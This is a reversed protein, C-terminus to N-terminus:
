LNAIFSTLNLDKVTGMKNRIDIVNSRNRIYYTKTTNIDTHGMLKTITADAFGSEGLVSAYTKRIKHPSKYPIDLKKCIRSLKKRISDTTYPLGKKNAFLYESETDIGKLLDLFSDSGTSFVISRNGAKTKPGNEKIATRITKKSDSDYFQGKMTRRVKFGFEEIDCKRLATAEGIRIGSLCITLLLLCASDYRKEWLYPILKKMEDESYVEEEDSKVIETFDNSNFDLEEFLNRHYINSEGKKYLYKLMKKLLGIANNFAKRSPAKRKVYDELYLTLKGETYDYINDELIDGFFEKVRYRARRATTESKSYQHLFFDDFASKITLVKKVEQNRYFAIIAKDLAEKTKRKIFRRGNKKGSDPLTTRWPNNDDGPFIAYKHMALYRKNKELEIKHVIDAENIIGNDIAYNLLENRKTQSQKLKIM